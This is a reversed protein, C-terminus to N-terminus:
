APRGLEHISPSRTPACRSRRRRRRLAARGSQRAMVDGGGRVDSQVAEVLVLRSVLRDDPPTARGHASKPRHHGAPEGPSRGSQEASVSGAAVARGDADIIFVLDCSRAFCARSSNLSSPFAGPPGSGPDTRGPRRSGQAPSGRGM